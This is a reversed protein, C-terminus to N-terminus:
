ANTKYGTDLSLTLKNTVVFLNLNIAKGRAQRASCRQIRLQHLSIDRFSHNWKRCWAVLWTLHYPCTLYCAYLFTFNNYFKNRSSQQYVYLYICHYYEFQYRLLLTRSYSCCKEPEPCSCIDYAECKASFNRRKYFESYKNIVQFLTLKQLLARPLHWISIKLQATFHEKWDLM